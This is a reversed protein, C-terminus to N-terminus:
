GSRLNFHQVAASQERGKSHKDHKGARRGSQSLVLRDDDCGRRGRLILAPDLVFKGQELLLGADFDLDHRLTGPLREVGGASAIGVHHEDM